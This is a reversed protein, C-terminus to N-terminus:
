LPLQIGLKEAQARMADQPTMSRVAPNGSKAPNKGGSMMNRMFAMPGGNAMIGGIAEEANRLKEVVEQLLHTQVILLARMESDTMSEALESLNPPLKGPVNLTPPMMEDLAEQNM